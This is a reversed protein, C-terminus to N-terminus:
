SMAGQSVTHTVSAAHADLRATFREMGPRVDDETPRVHFADMGRLAQHEALCLSRDRATAGMKLRNKVTKFAKLVKGDVMDHYFDRCIMGRIKTLEM